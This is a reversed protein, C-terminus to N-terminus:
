SANECRAPGLECKRMSGSRTRMKADLAREFLGSFSRLLMRMNADRRGKAKKRGKANRRGWSQPLYLPPQFGEMRYGGVKQRGALSPTPLSRSSVQTSYSPPVFGAWSETQEKMRTTRVVKTNSCGTRRTDHEAHARGGPPPLILVAGAPRFFRPHFRSWLGLSIRSDTEINSSRKLVDGVQARICVGQFRDKPRAWHHKTARSFRAGPVLWPVSDLGRTKAPRESVMTLINSGTSGM